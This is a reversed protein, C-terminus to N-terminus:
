ELIYMTNASKIYAQPSFTSEFSKDLAKFKAELNVMNTKMLNDNKYKNILEQYKKLNEKIRFTITGFRIKLSQIEKMQIYFNNKWKDPNNKKENEIKSNVNKTLETLYQYRISADNQNTYKSDFETKNIGLIKIINESISNTQIKNLEDLSKKIEEYETEILNKDNTYQSLVATLKFMKKSNKILDKNRSGISSIYDSIGSFLSSSFIGTLPTGKTLDGTLNILYSITEFQASKKKKKEVYESFGKFWESYEPYAMPNGIQELTGFFDRTTNFLRLPKIEREMSALNLIASGYNFKYTDVSKEEITNQKKEVQKIKEILQEVKVASSSSKELTNDITAIKSDFQSIQNKYVQKLQLQKDKLDGIVKEIDNQSYITSLCTFLFILLNFKNKKKM